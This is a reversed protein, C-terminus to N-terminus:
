ATSYIIGGNGPSPVGPNAGGEFSLDSINLKASSNLIRSSNNGSILAKQNGPGTIVLSDSVTIQGSTVAIPGPYTAFLVSDLQITEEGPNNNANIVAQRLSGTGSDALSNVLYGAPATRTELSSLRLVSKRGIM